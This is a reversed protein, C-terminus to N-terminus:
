ACPLLKSIIKSVESARRLWNHIQLASTAPLLAIDQATVGIQMMRLPLHQLIPMQMPAICIYHNMKRLITAIDGSYSLMLTM